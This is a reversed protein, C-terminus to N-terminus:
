KGWALRAAELALSPLGSSTWKVQRGYCGHHRLGMGKQTFARAPVTYFGERDLCVIAVRPYYPLNKLLWLRQSPELLFHCDSDLAKFEILGAHGNSAAFADPFGPTSGKSPEILSVEGPWINLWSSRLEIEPRM